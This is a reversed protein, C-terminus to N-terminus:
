AAPLGRVQRKRGRLQQDLPSLGGAGAAAVKQARLAHQRALHEKIYVEPAPKPLAGDREVILRDIEDSTAQWDKRAAEVTDAQEQLRVRLKNIREDYQARLDAKEEATAETPETPDGGADNDDERSHDAQAEVFEAFTARTLRPAVGTVMDRKLKGAEFGGLESIVALAPLGSETWHDDNTPDLKLLADTIQQEM